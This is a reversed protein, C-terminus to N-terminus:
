GKEVADIAALAASWDGFAVAYGCDCAHDFLREECERAHPVLQWMDVLTRRAKALAERLRRIEDTDTM